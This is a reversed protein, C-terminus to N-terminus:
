RVFVFVFVFLCVCRASGTSRGEHRGVEDPRRVAFGATLASLGRASLEDSASFSVTTHVLTFTSCLAHSRDM